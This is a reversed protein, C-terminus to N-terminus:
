MQKRVINPTKGTWQKFAHIFTSQESYGILTAITTLNLSKDKLYELALKKRTDQLLERFTIGKNLLQRNLTRPSVALSSAILALKPEGLAIHHIIQLQVKKILEDKYELDKLLDYTQKTLISKLITDPMLNKIDFVSKDFKIWMDNQEFNIPCSFFDILEQTNDKAANRIGLAIPKVELGTLIKIFQVPAALSFLEEQYGPLCLEIKGVIVFDKESERIELEHVDFFIKQFLKMLNLSEALNESSYLLYGAIGFSNFRITKAFNLSFNPDGTIEEATKLYRRWEKMPLFDTNFDFDLVKRMMEHDIKLESLYQHLWQFYYTSIRAIAMFIEIKAHIELKYLSVVM